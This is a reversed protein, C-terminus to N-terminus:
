NYSLPPPNWPPPPATMPGPMPPGSTAGTLTRYLNDLSSQITSSASSFSGSSDLQLYRTGRNPANPDPTYTSQNEATAKIALAAEYISYAAQLFNNLSTHVDTSSYGTFINAPAPAAQGGYAVYKRTRNNRRSKSKLDSKM